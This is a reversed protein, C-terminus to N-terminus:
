LLGSPAQLVTGTRVRGWHRLADKGVINKRRWHSRPARPQNGTVRVRAVAMIVPLAKEKHRVDGDVRDGGPM